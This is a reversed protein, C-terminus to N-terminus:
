EKVFARYWVGRLDAGYNCAIDFGSETINQVYVIRGTASVIDGQVFLFPRSSFPEDFKVTVFRANGIAGGGNFQELEARSVYVEKVPRSSGGGQQKKLAKIEAAMRDCLLEIRNKLTM